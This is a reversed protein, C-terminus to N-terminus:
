RSGAVFRARMPKLVALALVAALFAMGAAVYFVAQWSGSHTQIMLFVPLLLSATGKATYLLGANATAARDGFPLLATLADHVLDALHQRARDVGLLAVLTQKGAGADKGTAKGLAEPSATVDLLDDALQFAQGAAKAYDALAM